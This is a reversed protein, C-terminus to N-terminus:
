LICSYSYKSIIGVPLLHPLRTINEIYGIEGVLKEISKFAVIEQMSVYAGM